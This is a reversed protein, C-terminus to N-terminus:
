IYGDVCNCQHEFKWKCQEYYQHGNHNRDMVGGLTHHLCDMTRDVRRHFLISFSTSASMM